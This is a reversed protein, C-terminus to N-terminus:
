INFTDYRAGKERHYHFPLHFSMLIKVFVSASFFSMLIKVIRGAAVRAAHKTAPWRPQGREAANNKQPRHPLGSAAAVHLKSLDFPSTIALLAPPV